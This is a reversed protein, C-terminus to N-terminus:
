MLQANNDCIQSFNVESPPKGGVTVVRYVDSALDGDVNTLHLWDVNSSPNTPAAIDGTKTAIVFNNPNNTCQTFDFKPDLAGNFNTFTHLGQHALGFQSTVQSVLGGDLPNSDQDGAWNTYVCEQITDFEPSGNLGSIDFLQAVAGASRDLAKTIKISSCVAM